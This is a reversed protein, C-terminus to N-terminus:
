VSEKRVSFILLQLGLNQLRYNDPRFDISPPMARAAIFGRDDTM